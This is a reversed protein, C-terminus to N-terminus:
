GLVRRQSVPRVDLPTGPRSTWAAHMM